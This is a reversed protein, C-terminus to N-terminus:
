LAKLQVQNFVPGAPPTPAVALAAGPVLAGTVALVASLFLAKLKM